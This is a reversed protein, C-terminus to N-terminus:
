NYEMDGYPFINSNNVRLPRREIKEVTFNLDPKVYSVYRRFVDESLEFEKRELHKIYEIRGEATKGVHREYLNLLKESKSPKWLKELYHAKIDIERKMKDKKNVKFLDKFSYKSDFLTDICCAAYIKDVDVTTNPLYQGLLEQIKKNEFTKHDIVSTIAIKPTKKRSISEYKQLAYKWVFFPKEDDVKLLSLEKMKDTRLNKSLMLCDLKTPAFEASLNPLGIGGLKRPVFWPLNYRKLEDKHFSIFLRLVQERVETPCSEVLEESLEGLKLFDPKENGTTSSRSRGLLLGLNIFEIAKLKPDEGKDVAYTRSNINLFKDSWYCKGVSPELGAASVISTWIKQFDRDKNLKFRIVVDDGNILMPVDNLKVSRNINHEFAWRCLAANVICLVPFSLVSGMLQGRRQPKPNNIIKGEIPGILHRTLLEGGCFRELDDLELQDCIADWCEESLFPALNDTAAKYDGSLYCTGPLYKMYTNILKETVPEGTLRFIKHERLKNHLFKQIPKLLMTKYPAEKTIIRVKLAERLAVPAAFPFEKAAEKRIRSYLIEYRNQLLNDSVINEDYELLGGHMRLDGMIDTNDDLNFTGAGDLKVSINNERAHYLLGLAGLGSRGLVYNGSTSPFFMKFRDENTYKIDKPFLEEVTRRVQAKMSNEDLVWHAQVTPWNSSQEDDETIASAFKKQWYDIKDSFGAIKSHHKRVKEYFDKGGVYSPTLPSQETTITELFEKLKEEAFAESPRELGKGIRLITEVFTQAQRERKPDQLLDKIRKGIITGCLYKGEREKNTELFELGAKIPPFEQSWFSSFLAVTKWKLYDITKQETIPMLRKTIEEQIKEAPFKEAQQLNLQFYPISCILKLCDTFSTILRSCNEVM